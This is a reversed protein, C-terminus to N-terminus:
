SSLAKNYGLPNKITNVFMLFHCLKNRIKNRSLFINLFMVKTSKWLKIAWLFMYLLNESVPHQTLVRKMLLVYLEACYGLFIGFLWHCQKVEDEEINLSWGGSVRLLSFLQNKRRLKNLMFCYNYKESFKFKKMMKDLRSRLIILRTNNVVTSGPAQLM